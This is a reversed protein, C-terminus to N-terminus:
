SEKKKVKALERMLSAKLSLERSEIKKVKVFERIISAMLSLDSSEQSRLKAYKASARLWNEVYRKDVDEGQFHLKITEKGERLFPVLDESRKFQSLTKKDLLKTKPEKNKEGPM